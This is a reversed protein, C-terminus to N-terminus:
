DMSSLSDLAGKAVNYRSVDDLAEADFVCENDAKSDPNRNGYQDVKKDVLRGKVSLRMSGLFFQPILDSVVFLNLFTDVNALFDCNDM